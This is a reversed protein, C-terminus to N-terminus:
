FPYGVAFHLTNNSTSVPNRIVWPNADLKSPDYIKVGLDLRLIFYNFDFRVGLGYSLAIEKYFDNIEFLGGPQSEYNRITWVNGADLFAALELKWVLRTRYEVSADFRIDGCQNFYDFEPNNSRYRGPGLTRVSWGRVSNAGGAYYRKEFPLVDSNGYPVGVGAAVHFALSNKETIIKTYAYDIDFKGYQEYRLGAIRYTGDTKKLGVLKSVGYLFNGAVELNARLTFIDRNRIAPNLNSRYFTYGTRTILHDTYSSYTIPNQMIISDRFSESRYPLYVYSVDIFDLSHRNRNYNTLWNYKWGGGAIVRTYEPRHQYNYSAKFETTARIRRKQETSLMPFLFKPFSLSSEIGYETYNNKVLGSVDGTMNEYGGRVKTTFTESGSFINRHQYTVSAAFGFNGASNTGELETQLGQNKGPTLLIHCDVLEPDTKSVEFRINVYKLIQLRAFATYTADVARDSYLAGPRIFCNEILVGAKLYKKEGYVVEYGRDYVTDRVAIKNLVVDMPDYDTQFIVRGIRYPKHTRTSFGGDADQVRQPLVNLELAVDNSRSTTDATYNIYDKNFNWYGRNRIRATLRVREKELINRDLLEGAHILSASSDAYVIKRISDNPIQYAFQSIILPENTTIFYDVTIKKKDKQLKVEVDSDIYGKNILFKKIERESRITLQPDYIEPPNGARRLFRNIWRSSDPGSLNYLYLPFPIFGFTKHAPEQKLYPRVESAKVHKNDSYINVKRVMYEGDPVYKTLSCASVLILIFFYITIRLYRM